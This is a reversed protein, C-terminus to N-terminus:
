FQIRTYISPFYYRAGGSDLLYFCLRMRRM